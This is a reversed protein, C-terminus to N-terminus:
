RIARELDTRPPVAMSRRIIGLALLIIGYPTLLYSVALAAGVWVLMPRNRDHLMAIAAAGLGALDYHLMYPSILAAACALAAYRDLLDDRRFAAWACLIGLVIGLWYVADPLGHRHVLANPGIGKELIDRAALEQSFAPLANLWELWSQFGWILSTLVALAAAVAGTWIAVSWQRSAILAVPLVVLAQPKIMGALAFCLGAVWPRREVVGFIVLAAVFLSTQGTFASVAWAPLLISLAATRWDTLRSTAAFLLASGTLSWLILSPIFPLASFPAILLLSSPPYAFARAAVETYLRDIPVQPAPWIFAYDSYYNPVTIVDNWLVSGVTMLAFAAAVVILSVRVADRM